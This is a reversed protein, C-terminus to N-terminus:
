LKLLEGKKKDFEEQTLIGMDLLQKLEILEAFNSSAAQKQQHIDEVDKSMLVQMKRDIEYIDADTKKEFTYDHGKNKNDVCSIIYQPKSMFKGPKCVMNTIASLPYLKDKILITGNKKSAKVVPFEGNKIPESVIVEVDSLSEKLYEGDYLAIVKKEKVNEMTLVDSLLLVNNGCSVCVYKNDHTVYDLFGCEAGCIVCNKDDIKKSRDKLIEKAKSSDDLVAKIDDLTNKDSVWKINNEKAISECKKFCKPCIYGDVLVRGVGIYNDGCLDCKAM